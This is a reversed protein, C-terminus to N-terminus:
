RVDKLWDRIIGFSRPDKRLQHTAGELMIKKKPHVASEFMLDAHGPPVTEDSDGHVIGVMRPSIFPLYRGPTLNLFDKYWRTIDVPFDTDRIIGIQRFHERLLEPDDPLIDSFHYPTAMLLLSRIYPENSAVKAAIAGGASFGICHISDPDIGPTNYIKHAVASLDHFWGKMDINGGSDGCGRFNFVV